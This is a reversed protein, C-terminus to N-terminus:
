FTEVYQEEPGLAPRDRLEVHDGRRELELLVIENRGTRLLPAPVYLTEQPGIAWYRGLLFGNVWVFGHGFGPLALHADLAEDLHFAAVASGPDSPRAGSDIGPRSLVALADVDADVLPVPEATWRQIMRRDVLVPGILGKEEGLSPGYNVRGLGEVLVELRVVEGHGTVAVTGREAVVDRLEGDVRVYARDAVRTFVLEVDQPPLRVQATYRMLGGDQGLAEFSATSRAPVPASALAGLAASLDQAPTAVISRPTVFRPPASLVPGTAGLVQRMAHFKPTLTGDEAVPADSDYSTVTGRLEGDVRNAGAWLGFNTGGHAMYISVSGHDAIIERLSEAASGADRVHHPRGWHDFWGNWYEAAFFPEDPRRSRALERAAGARSGMTIATLVGDVAGSDLMLPTPGDATFLLEVIGRERLARALTVLHGSDDGFSGFENEVQVAVIPGGHAAQLPVIRPLLRDFWALVPGLYAPDDTRLSRTAATLWSPLAGNTWEACIYPGPRVIADLGVEQAMRLFTELDRWGTFDPEAEPTPQHFNWAVYTDVTNLGMDALRQLRDRWQAPHVRFYHLSGSLVQAPEGNRFFRNSRWSLAPSGPAIAGDPASREIM